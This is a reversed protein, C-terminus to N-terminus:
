LTGFVSVTTLMPRSDSNANGITTSQTSSSAMPPTATIAHQPRPSFAEQEFGRTPGRSISSAPQPTSIYGFPDSSRVNFSPRPDDPLTSTKPSPAHTAPSVGSNSSNTPRALGGSAAALIQKSEDPLAEDRVDRPPTTSISTEPTNVSKESDKSTTDSSTSESSSVRTVWEAQNSGKPAGLRRRVAPAPLDPLRLFDAVVANRPLTTEAEPSRGRKGFNSPSAVVPFGASIGETDALKAKGKPDPRPTDKLRVFSGDTSPTEIHLDNLKVLDITIDGNVALGATGYGGAKISPSLGHKSCFKLARRPQNSLPAARIRSLQSM